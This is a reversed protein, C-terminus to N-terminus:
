PVARRGSAPRQASPRWRGVRLARLLRGGQRRVGNIIAIRAHVHLYNAASWCSLRLKQFVSLEPTTAIIRQLFAERVLMPYKVALRSKIGMVRAMNAYSTSTGGWRKVMLTEPVVVFEGILCLKALVLHDTAIVNPMPVASALAERKYLGYFIVGVHNGDHITSKYRAYRGAPPLGITSFGRDVLIQRGTEGDVWEGRTGALILRESLSFADICARVYGPAWWDDHCAWMFYRGRGLAFVTNFNAVAGINAPQRYYRIRGDRRALDLCVAATGDTSANDSIILEFNTYEQDLLSTVAGHLHPMGNYVPMGISVLPGDKVNLGGCV